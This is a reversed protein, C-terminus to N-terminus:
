ERVDALELISAVFRTNREDNKVDKSLGLSFLGAMFLAIYWFYPVEPIPQLMGTFVLVAPVILSMGLGCQFRNLAEEREVYKSYRGRRCLMTAVLLLSSKNWDIMRREFSKEIVKCFADYIKESESSSTSKLGSSPANVVAAKDKRALRFFLTYVFRFPYILYLFLQVPRCISSDIHKLISSLFNALSRFSELSALKRGLIALLYGVPYAVVFLVLVLLVESSLFSALAHAQDPLLSVSILCLFLIGPMAYGVWDMLKFHRSDVQM